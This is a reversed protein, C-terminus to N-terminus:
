VKRNTGKDYEQLIKDRIKLVLQRCTEKSIGLRAGLKRYSQCDIYLLIITQEVQTLREQIIRKVARVREDEPNFISPDWTYDQSIEKYSRVIEKEDEM